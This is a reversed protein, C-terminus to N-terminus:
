CGDAQSIVSSCNNAIIADLLAAALAEALAEALAAAAGVADEAADAVADEAADATTKSGHPMGTTGDATMFSGHSTGKGTIFSGHSTGTGTDGHMGAAAGPVGTACLQPVAAGPVGVGAVSAQCVAAGAEGNRSAQDVGAAAGFGAGGGIGDICSAGHGGPPQDPMEGTATAAFIASTAEAFSGGTFCAGRHFAGGAVAGEEEVSERGGTGGGM